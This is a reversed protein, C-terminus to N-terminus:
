TSSGDLLSIIYLNAAGLLCVDYANGDDHRGNSFDASFTNVDGSLVGDMSVALGLM